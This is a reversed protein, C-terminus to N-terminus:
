GPSGLHTKQILTITNQGFENRQLSLYEDLARWILLSEESDLKLDQQMPLIEAGEQLTSPQLYTNLRAFLRSAAPNFECYKSQPRQPCRRDTYLRLVTWALMSEDITMLLAQAKWNPNFPKMPVLLRPM